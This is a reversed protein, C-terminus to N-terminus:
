CSSWRRGAQLGRARMLQWRQLMCRLGMRLPVHPGECLLIFHVRHSHTHVACREARRRQAGARLAAALAHGPAAAVGPPPVPLAPGQVAARAADRAAGRVTRDAPTARDLPICCGAGQLQPGGVARHGPAPVGLCTLSGGGRRETRGAVRHRRLSTGGHCALSKTRCRRRCAWLNHTGRPAYVTLM